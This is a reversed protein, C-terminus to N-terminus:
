IGRFIWLEDLIGDFNNSSSDAHKGIMLDLPNNLNGNRNTPNFTHVCLGDVYIKGGTTNNREVYFAVYHWKGDNIPTSNPNWYNFWNNNGGPAQCVHLLPRGQYLTVHYGPSLHSKRKDIITNNIKKSKTKVWFAIAFDSTGLNPSNSNPVKIFRSGNFSFAKGVKGPVPATGNFFTCSLPSGCGPGVYVTTNGQNFNEFPAYLVDIALAGSTFLCFMGFVLGLVFVKKKINM